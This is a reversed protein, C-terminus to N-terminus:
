RLQCGGRQRSRNVKGGCNGSTTLILDGKRLQARRVEASTFGRVPLSAWGVDGTTGVDGNRVALATLEGEEQDTGWYGSFRNPLVKSLAMM